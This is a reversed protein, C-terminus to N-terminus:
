RFVHDRSFVLNVVTYSFLILSFGVVSVLATKKGKLHLPASFLAVIYVFLVLLTAGLKADWVTGWNKKAWIMGLTLSITLASVGVAIATHEMRDLVDLAPLRSFLLGTKRQRLQRDQVLYLLALIFALSLAAYGLIAMTVHFAFLPGSLARKAPAPLPRALLSILLFVIVLPILFPGTSRERHRFLLFVYAVAIMWAFFSVSDSLDRYPVSHLRRARVQLAAFHLVLGSALLLTTVRGLADSNKRLSAISFGEAAVYLLLALIGFLAGNM